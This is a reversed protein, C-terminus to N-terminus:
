RQKVQADYVERYIPCDRLLQEHKGEGVIRGKELVYITDCDKVSTARQSVLIITSDKRKAINKRVKLDSKYDLASTADDLILIPRASLLARAILLRQKQGGSFNTGGEEVEGDLGGEKGRVFEDALADQLAEEIRTEEYHRGLTLNDRITGQFLQPKQSVLAIDDRISSLASERIDHGHFLVEGSQADIFRSLLSLLTSKGSGTGGIIGIKEGRHVTLNIDSLAMSEGGFGVSVNKLEYLPAGFPVEEEQARPGDVIEPEIAFFADIRNKDAYAKSFSTVLRTFQILANLSQTLFSILAVISGVSIGTQPLAFSGLYLVLVVALNVFGFTLPNIVANIRSLRLAQRRYKESAARFENATDEQKNFARVVRTGTILDDGQSSILDLENMLATYEKPTTKVVIFIVLACLSLAGLVVLGAFPNVIFAAIISGVVLFPARVLLRMFMQVGTQLSASSASVLNLAKNKGYRELEVPSLKGIHAYLNARLEKGFRTTTSSALYQAVMTLGFGFVSLGFVVLCLGLVFGADGYRSGGETLGDDIIARVLFPIILECACEAAKLGPALFVKARHKKLPTLAKM